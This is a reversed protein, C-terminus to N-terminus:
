RFESEVTVIDSWDTRGFLRALATFLVDPDIVSEASHVGVRDRITGDALRSVVQALGLALPIATAGAMDSLLESVPSDDAIRAVVRMERGERVGTASAFFLPLSGHGGRTLMRPAARIMRRLSPKGLEEAASDLDIRGKDIDSRLVDLFAVTEPTIVMLNASHGAPNITRHFMVPEPHGVVYANGRRGGPLELAISRLPEENVIRGARVVPVMGSIQQMWHVAAASLTDVSEDEGEVDVPWATYLDDVVDLRSVAMAALLNSMGPSAGMGVVACIGAERAACDLELMDVAPEWDDCIDLYHTETEIAAQLVGVGFRFFPGVTNIIVDAGDLLERLTRGDTVDISRAEVQASAQALEVSLRKAADIDRDAVVVKGIGPLTAALRVAASGMAGAGGLAVVTIGDAM